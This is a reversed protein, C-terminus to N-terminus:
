LNRTAAMAKETMHSITLSVEGVVTRSQAALMINDTSYWFYRIGADLWFELDPINAAFTGVVIGAERSLAVIDTMAQRLLPDRVQGPIGLSQSLDYPGIFVADLGPTAVIEAANEVGVAGEIQVIIATQENSHQYYTGPEQFSYNGARVTPDLGRNGLPYFKAAQVAAAAEAATTVHPVVVGMAGMDLAKSIMPARNEAVRVVPIVNVLLAARILHEIIEESLTAHEQDIVVSRIGAHGLIEIIAPDRFKLSPGWILEDQRWCERLSLM